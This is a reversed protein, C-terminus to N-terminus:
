WLDYHYQRIYIAMYEDTGMTALMRLMYSVRVTIWGRVPRAAWIVMLTYWGGVWGGM